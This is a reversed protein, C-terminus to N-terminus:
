EHQPSRSTDYEDHRRVWSMFLGDSRGPPQECDEQRGLPTLDLYTYAGIQVDGGHAYSSYTHFVTHGNRLFVSTGPLEGAWDGGM